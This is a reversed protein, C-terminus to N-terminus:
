EGVLEGHERGVDVDDRIFALDCVIHNAKRLARLAERLGDDARSSEAAQPDEESALCGTVGVPRVRGPTWTCSPQSLRQVYQMMQFARPRAREKSGASISSSTRAAM